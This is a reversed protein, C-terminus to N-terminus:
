KKGKLKLLKINASLIRTYEDRYLISVSLRNLTKQMVTSINKSSTLVYIPILSKTSRDLERLDQIIEIPSKIGKYEINLFALKINRSKKIKLPDMHKSIELLSVKENDVGMLARKAESIYYGKCVDVVLLKHSSDDILALEESLEVDAKTKSLLNQYEDQHLKIDTKIKQRLEKCKSILTNAETKPYVFAKKSHLASIYELNLKHLESYASNLEIFDKEIEAIRRM